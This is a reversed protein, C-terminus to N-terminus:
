AAEGQPFLALQDAASGYYARRANTVLIKMSLMQKEYAGWSLSFDSECTIAFLGAYRSSGLLYNGSRHIREVSAKVARDNLHFEPYKEIVERIKIAKEAGHHQQMVLNQLIFDFTTLETKPQENM